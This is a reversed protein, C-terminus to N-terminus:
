LRFFGTAELQPGVKWGGFRNFSDPGPKAPSEQAEKLARAALEDESRLKNPWDLQRVQGFKDLYPLELLKANATAGYPYSLSVQIDELDLTNSSSRILLRCALVDEPNFKMWHRRFGNPVSDQRRFIEPSDDAENPRPYPFALTAREGPLVFAMSSCNKAWDLAGENDLRGRIWVLGDGSNTIDVRL